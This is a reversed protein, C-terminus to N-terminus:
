QTIEQPQQFHYEMGLERVMQIVRNEITKTANAQKPFDDQEMAEILTQCANKITGAHALTKRVIKETQPHAM